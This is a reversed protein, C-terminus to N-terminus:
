TRLLSDHESVSYLELWVVEPLLHISKKKLNKLLLVAIWCWPSCCDLLLLVWSLLYILFYPFYVCHNKSPEPFGSVDIGGLLGFILNEIIGLRIDQPEM